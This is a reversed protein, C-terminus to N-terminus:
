ISVIVVAGHAFEIFQKIGASGGLVMRQRIQNIGEAYENRFVIRLVNM